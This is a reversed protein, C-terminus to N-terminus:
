QVNVQKNTKKHSDYSILKNKMNRSNNKRKKKKEGSMGLFGHSLVFVMFPLLDGTMPLYLMEKKQEVHLKM